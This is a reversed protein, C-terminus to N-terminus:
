VFPKIAFAQSEDISQGCLENPGLNQKIDKIREFNDNDQCYQQFPLKSPDLLNVLLYVLSIFDDRRSLKMFDFANKSAYM